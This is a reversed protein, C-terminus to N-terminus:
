KRITCKACQLEFGSIDIQKIQNGLEIKTNLFSGKPFLVFDILQTGFVVGNKVDRVSIETKGNSQPKIQIEFDQKEFPIKMKLTEGKIEMGPHKEIVDISSVKSYFNKVFALETYKAEKSVEGRSSSSFIRFAFRSNSRKEKRLVEASITFKLLMESDDMLYLYSEPNQNGNTFMFSEPFDNIFTVTKGNNSYTMNENKWGPMDFINTYFLQTTITPSIQQKTLDSSIKPKKVGYFNFFMLVVVLVLLVVLIVYLYNPIKEGSYGM